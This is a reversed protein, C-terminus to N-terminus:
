RLIGVLLTYPTMSETAAKTTLKLTYTQGSAIHLTKTENCMLFSEDMISGDKYLDLQLDAEPCKIQISVTVDSATFQVWDAEDGGALSVSGNSQLRGVGGPSLNVSTIPSELSDHDELAPSAGVTADIPQPGPTAQSQDAIIPLADINQAQTFESAIWGTGGKYRIQLWRGSSVKGTLSVVDNPILTGLSEFDKGPGNRVNVGQLILATSGLDIIPIEASASVQIYSAIVWGKGQPSSPDSIQYWKGNSEKALIQVTSFAAVTNLSEGATSPESRLNLQTTTVGEISESPTIQQTSSPVAQTSFSLPTNTAPLTATIFAPPAATVAEAGCSTLLLTSALIGFWTKKNV